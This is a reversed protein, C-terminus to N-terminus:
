LDRCSRDVSYTILCIVQLGAGASFCNSNAICTAGGGGAGYGLGGHGGIDSISYDGVSVIPRVSNVLLGSRSAGNAVGDFANNFTASHDSTVINSLNLAAIAQSWYTSGQGIGFTNSGSESAMGNEGNSGGAGSNQNFSAAASGAGSGGSEGNPCSGAKGGAAFLLRVM